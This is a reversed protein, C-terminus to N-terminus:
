DKVWPFKAEIFFRYDDQLNENKWADRMTKRIWERIREPLDEYRQIKIKGEAAAQMIAEYADPIYECSAVEVPQSATFAFPIKGSAQVPATDDVGYVYASVGRYTEYLANPYYEQLVLIRDKTFGYPGWKQWKGSHVFGNETCYKEIANSLYVLTNERKGSFYILPVGDNSIRPELQKIGPVPSAHYYM